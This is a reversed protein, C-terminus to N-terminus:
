EPQDWFIVQEAITWVAVFGAAGFLWIVFSPLELAWALMIFVALSLLTYDSVQFIGEDVLAQRRIHM